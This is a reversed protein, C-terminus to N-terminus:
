QSLVPLETVGTSGESAMAKLRDDITLAPRSNKAAIIKTVATKPRKKQPQPQWTSASCSRQRCQISFSPM